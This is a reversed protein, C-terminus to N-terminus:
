QSPLDPIAFFVTRAFTFAHHLRDNLCQPLRDPLQTYNKLLNWTPIPAKMIKNM